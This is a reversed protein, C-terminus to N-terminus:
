FKVNKANKEGLYADELCGLAAAIVQPLVDVGAAAVPDEALQKEFAVRALAALASARRYAEVDAM